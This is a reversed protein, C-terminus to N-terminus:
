APLPFAREIWGDLLNGLQSGSFSVALSLLLLTTLLGYGSARLPRQTQASSEKLVFIAVGLELSYLGLALLSSGILLHAGLGTTSHLLFDQILAQRARIRLDLWLLLPLMGGLLGLVYLLCLSINKM